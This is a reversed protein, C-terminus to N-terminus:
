FSALIASGVAVPLAALLIAIALNDAATEFRKFFRSMPTLEQEEKFKKGRRCVFFPGRGLARGTM